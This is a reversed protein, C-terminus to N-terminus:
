EFTLWTSGVHFKMFTKLLTMVHRMWECKESKFHTKKEVCQPPGLSVRILILNPELLTYLHSIHSARMQARIGASTPMPHYISHARHECQRTQSFLVRRHTESPNWWRRSFSIEENQTDDVDDDYVPTYSSSSPRKSCNFDQLPSWPLSMSTFIGFIFSIFVLVAVFSYLFTDIQSLKVCRIFWRSHLAIWSRESQPLFNEM